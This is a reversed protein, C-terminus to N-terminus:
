AAPDHGGGLRVKESLARRQSADLCDAALARRHLPIVTRNTFNLEGRHREEIQSIMRYINSINLQDEPLLGEQQVMVDVSNRVCELKRLITVSPKKFPYTM